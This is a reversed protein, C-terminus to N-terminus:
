QKRGGWILVYDKKANELAKVMKEIKHPMLIDDCAIAQYYKGKAIDICKNLTKTVGLNSKNQIITIDLDSHNQIWDMIKISSNDKSFDDAIILQINSYTQEAISDLTEIVYKEQNYCLAVVTVIPNNSNLTTM